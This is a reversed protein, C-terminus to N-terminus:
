NGNKTRNRRARNIEYRRIAGSPDPPWKKWTRAAYFSRVRTGIKKKRNPVNWGLYRLERTRKKWDDQNAVFEILDSPIFEGHFAKLLEGIRVHVSKENMFRKMVEPDFSAFHNKKGANCERCIAWLNDHETNGGWERPIKHDVVLKIGDETTTRGCMPCRGRAKMLAEARLRGSIPADDLSIDREGKYFHRWEGPPKVYRCEIIYRSRLNRRRRDSQSHNLGLTNEIQVQSIGVEAFQKLLALIQKSEKGLNPMAEGLDPGDPADQRRILAILDYSRHRTLTVRILIVSKFSLIKGFARFL